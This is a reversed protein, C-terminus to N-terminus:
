SGEVHSNCCMKTITRSGTAPATPGSNSPGNSAPLQVRREEQPSSAQFKAKWTKVKKNNKTRSIQALFLLILFISLQIKVCEM